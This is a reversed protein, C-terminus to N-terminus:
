INVVPRVAGSYAALFTESKIVTSTTVAVYYNGENMLWYFYNGNSIWEPTDEGKIYKEAKPDQCM